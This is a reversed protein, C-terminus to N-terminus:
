DHLEDHIEDHLGNYLYNHFPYPPADLAALTAGLGEDQDLEFPEGWILFDHFTPGRSFTDSVHEDDSAKWFATPGCPGQPDQGRDFWHGVVGRASKIGGIQIGESKWREHGHYISHTTWRVEGERTMGVYGRIDSTANDDWADDTPRSTGKFHVLPYDQRYEPPPDEIKTVHIRMLILRVAQETHIPPRPADSLIINSDPFNFTFFDNYDLFCVVRHWLGTVGFPDRADLESMDAPKPSVFSDPWSGNFPSHWIHGFPRTLRRELMNHSLVILAAEVKEWDVNGSNDGMFPGWSALGTYGRLDYVQSCAYPYTTMARSRGVRLIPPGYLCHLRASMQRQQPSLTRKRRHSKKLVRDFLSSLQLFAARNSDVRFLSLVLEANRSALHADLYAASLTRDSRANRLLRAVTDHVFAIHNQKDEALERRCINRLRVLDHLERQWDLQVGDGPQDLIKLYIELCLRHNGKVFDNLRRCIRPVTALDEPDLNGFISHLIENPLTTLHAM